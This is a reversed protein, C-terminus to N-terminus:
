NWLSGPRELVGPGVKADQDQDRHQLFVEADAGIGGQDLAVVEEGLGLVQEQMTDDLAL